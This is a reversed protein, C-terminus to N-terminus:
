NFVIYDYVGTCPTYPLNSTYSFLPKKNPVFFDNLSWTMANINTADGTNPIRNVSEM